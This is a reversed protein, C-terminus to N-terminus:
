DRVESDFSCYKKAESISENSRSIILSNPFFGVYECIRVKPDNRWNKFILEVGKSQPNGQIWASTYNINRTDAWLNLLLEEDKINLYDVYYVRNVKEEFLDNISKSLEVDQIRSTLLSRDQFIASFTM